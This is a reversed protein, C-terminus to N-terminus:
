GRRTIWFEKGWGDRSVLFNSRMRNAALERLAEVACMDSLTYVRAAWNASFDGLAFQM